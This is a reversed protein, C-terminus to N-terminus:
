RNLQFKSEEDLGEAESTQEGSLYGGASDYRFALERFTDPFAAKLKDLNDSDAQRMAAQIIAYFPPNKESIEIGILYEYHSM